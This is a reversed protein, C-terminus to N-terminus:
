EMGRVGQSRRVSVLSEYPTRLGVARRPHRTPAARPWRRRAPGGYSDPLRTLPGPLRRSPKSGLFVEMKPLFKLFDKWLPCSIAAGLATGSEGSAATTSGLPPHQSRHSAASGDAGANPCRHCRLLRRERLTAAIEPDRKVDREISRRCRSCVM